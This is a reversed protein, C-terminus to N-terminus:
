AGVPPRVRSAELRAVSDAVPRFSFEQLLRRLRPLTRRLGGYHRIRTVLPVHLQPQDPDVEWPHIYFTAPWGRRTADRMAQQVLILPLHRLYGGGAAPLTFPGYRLTAPPIEM